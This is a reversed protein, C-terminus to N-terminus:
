VCRVTSDMTQLYGRQLRLINFGKVMVFHLLWLCLWLSSYHSLGVCLLSNRGVGAFHDTQSKLKVLLFSLRVVCYGPGTAAAAATVATATAAAANAVGAM